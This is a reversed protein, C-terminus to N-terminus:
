AFFFTSTRSIEFECVKFHIIKVTRLLLGNSFYQCSHTAHGICEVIRKRGSLGSPEAMGINNNKTTNKWPVIWQPFSFVDCCLLWLVLSTLSVAAFCVSHSLRYSILVFVGSRMHTHLCSWNSVNVSVDSNLVFRRTVWWYWRPACMILQCM